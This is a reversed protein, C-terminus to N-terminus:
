TYVKIIQKVKKRCIPCKNGLDNIKNGCGKCFCQHGCPVCLHTNKSDFCVVCTKSEKKKSTSNTKKSKKKKKSTTKPSHKRCIKIIGKGYLALKTTNYGSVFTVNSNLFSNERM